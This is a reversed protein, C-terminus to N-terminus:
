LNGFLFDKIVGLFERLLNNPLFLRTSPAPIGICDTLGQKVAIKQARYLHFNSTIIAVSQSGAPILGLSFRINETTSTSRDELIIREPEIGLAVLYTKMGQAETFPENFGQGGSVICSTHPHEQLYAAATDLRYRLVPSPGDAHIQAGLIIVTDATNESHIGGFGRLILIQVFIFLVLLLCVVISFTVKLWVPLFRRLRFASASALGFCLAGIAFWIIYFSSGTGLSAVLNGYIISLIGLLSWFIIFLIRIM